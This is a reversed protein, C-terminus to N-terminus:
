HSGEMKANIGSPKEAPRSTQFSVGCTACMPLSQSFISLCVSCVHAVDIVQKTDFCMARLDVTEPKPLELIERTSRAPLFFTVFTQLLAKDKHTVRFYVGQTIHCAQQLFVSDQSSFVCADMYAEMRQAAFICNMMSIYQASSDNSAQLVLLRPELKAGTTVIRNLYCLATALGSALKPTQDPEDASESQAQAAALRERLTQIIVPALNAHNRPNPDHKPPYIVHSGTCDSGVLVLKNAQHLLMFANLYALVAEVMSQFSHSATKWGEMSDRICM